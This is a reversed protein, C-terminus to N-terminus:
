DGEKKLELDRKGAMLRLFCFDPLIYPQRVARSFVSPSFYPDPVM